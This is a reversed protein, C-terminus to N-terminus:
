SERPSIQPLTLSFSFRKYCDITLVKFNNTDASHRTRLDKTLFRLKTGVADFQVEDNTIAAYDGIAGNKLKYQRPLSLPFPGRLCEVPRVKRPAM